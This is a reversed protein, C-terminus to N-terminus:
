NKQTHYISYKILCCGASPLFLCPMDHASLAPRTPGRPKDFLFIIPRTPGRGTLYLRTPGPRAPGRGVVRFFSPGPRRGVLTPGHCARFFRHVGRACTKTTNTAHVLRYGIYGRPYIVQYVHCHFWMGPLRYSARIKPWGQFATTNRPPRISRRLCLRGNKQPM